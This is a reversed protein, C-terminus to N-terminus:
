QSFKPRWSNYCLKVICKYFNSLYFPIQCPVTVIVLIFKKKNKFALQAYFHFRSTYLQDLSFGENNWLANLM